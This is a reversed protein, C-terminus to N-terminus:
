YNWWWADGAPRAAQSRVEAVQDEVSTNAAVHWSDIQVGGSATVVWGRRGRIFSCHPAVTKPAHWQENTLQQSPTGTLLALSLGAQNLLDNRHILAAVVCMDMLNRLQGFVPDIRSLEDYHETFAEAWRQAPESTRGTHVVTGDAQILSDETLTKVGPGRLQWALGDDSQAVSEYNTALWWRPTAQQVSTPANRILDLYSPLGRVPADEIKMAYRKMRYDAAVLIRAFHTDAPVGQLTVQQPGFAEKMAPELAAPNVPAGSRRHQALLANLRRIGEETPDISCTIGGQRAADVTQFAVLLDELQIVPRGTTVGVVTADDRVKWGEGPGALVIDNEEPYVFVYEIRQLGALFRVEDPLSGGNNRLADEWADQL